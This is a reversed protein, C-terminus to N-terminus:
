AAARPADLETVLRFAAGVEDLQYHPQLHITCGFVGPKGPLENVEVRANRLPQRAGSEGSASTGASAFQLLWEQLRGEIDEATQFSGVMQRGMIKVCHAFRSVCLMANFQASLRQNGAAIASQEAPGGMRPPRHLSPAAAFVAEPLGADLGIMPLLGAEVLQREQDDTLAVELPPRPPPGGPPDSPLREHPLRDVVGGFPPDGIAAGRIDAPWGWSAFARMVIAAFPYVANMWARAEARGPDPRFRFGDPRTGDDPWAGRVLARPLLVSLFRTDEREQLDRWRRGATGRLPEVPDVAAGLEAFDGLDLLTPHAGVVTPSFAAAAVAALGDLGAVDDVTYSRDKVPRLMWDGCLLGYPEGGATGFEEEYVKKFYQSQDFELAREFDRCLEPWRLVLMRLRIRTAAGPPIRGALWWLGRWSGELRRLREDHQVAELQATIATDLAAIDRDAAEELRAAAIARPCVGDDLDPVPTGAALRALAPGGFWEELRECRGPSELWLVLAAAAPSARQEALE